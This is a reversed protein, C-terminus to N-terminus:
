QNHPVKVIATATSTNGAADTATYTIQYFRGEGTGRREARLYINGNEDIQIDDLTHGDGTWTDFAADYTNTEDGENMIISTLRVEPQIDCNDTVGITPTILVLKHNPPWLINPSVTVNIVPPTVDQVTVVQTQTTTNGNGDDYTWTVLYNGQEGYILPDATTGVITGACNDTAAPSSTIEAFCEGTVEPLEALDPVPPINDVVTVSAECSDSESDDDTVTLTVWHQGVPFPGPPDISLTISDDDPDYSGGDVEAATITAECNEEVPVEIDQCIAVPPENSVKCKGASGAQYIAQIEAASLARNFIEVEDLLGDLHFPGGPVETGFYIPAVSDQIPSFPTISVETGNIYWSLQSTSIRGVVAIHVWSGTTVSVGSHRWGYADWFCLQNHLNGTTQGIAWGPGGHMYYKKVYLAELDTTKLWFDITFDTGVLDLSPSDPMEVYDDVGDFEFAQDVMGDAFKAGNELTGNNGDAIDDADGDGPWWSVMDSPPPVCEVEYGLGNLGNMYHQQIEKETLARDYIAVEDILGNFYENYPPGGIYLVETATLGGMTSPIDLVGDIYVGVGNVIAVHHWTNLIVPSGCLNQCREWKGQLTGFCAHSLEGRFVKQTKHQRVYIWGELSMQSFDIGMAPIEIFDNFGDFSLAGGVLGNTRTPGNFLIGDNDGVSDYAIVGETEDFKWYAIMGGPYSHSFVFTITFFCATLLMGLLLRKKM